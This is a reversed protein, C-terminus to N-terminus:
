SYQWGPQEVNRSRKPGVQVPRTQVAKILQHPEEYFIDLQSHVLLLTDQQHLIELHKGWNM